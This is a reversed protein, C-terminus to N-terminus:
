VAVDRVSRELVERSNGVVLDGALKLMKWNFRDVVSQPWTVGLDIRVDGDDSTPEDLERTPDDESRNYSHHRMLLLLKSSLPFFVKTGALGIGAEAPPPAAPNYFSVPSDTTVFSAGEAAAFIEWDMTQFWPTFTGISWRMYDFRAPKKMKLQVKGSSVGATIEEPALRLITKRMLDMASKAQRPVRVRQVELYVLFEALEQDTLTSPTLILKDINQKAEGELWEGLGKEFLDPDTGAPAWEQRYYANIKMVQTPRQRRFSKSSLEYVHLFGDPDTFRSLYSRPVFHHSKPRSM